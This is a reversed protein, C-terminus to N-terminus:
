AAREQEAASRRSEVRYREGDRALPLVTGVVGLDRRVTRDTVALLTALEGLTRPADLLEVLRLVREAQTYTGAPRGGSSRRTAHAPRPATAVPGRGRMPVGARSLARQVVSSAVRHRRAITDITDGARYETAWREVAPTM